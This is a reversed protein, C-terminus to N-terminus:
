QLDHFTLRTGDLIAVRTGDASCAVSVGYADDFSADKWTQAPIPQLLKGSPLLYAAVTQDGVVIFRGSAGCFAGTFAGNQGEEPIHADLKGITTGSRGDKLLVDTPGDEDWSLNPFQVAWKGNPSRVASPGFQAMVRGTKLDVIKSGVRNGSFEVEGDETVGGGM